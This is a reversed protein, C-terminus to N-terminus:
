QSPAQVPERVLAAAHVRGVADAVDAHRGERHEEHLARREQRMLALKLVAVAAGVAGAQETDGFDGGVVVDAVHEIRGCRHQQMRHEGFGDLLEPLDVAAEVHEAPEIPARQDRQVAGFIVTRPLDMARVARRPDSAIAPGLIVVAHQRGRQHCGPVILHDRQLRLEDDRLVPRLLLVALVHRGLAPQGRVGLAVGLKVRDIETVIQEGALREALRHQVGAAMEDEDALRRRM